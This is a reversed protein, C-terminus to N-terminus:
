LVCQLREWITTDAEYTETQISELEPAQSNRQNELNSFIVNGAAKGRVAERVSEDRIRIM